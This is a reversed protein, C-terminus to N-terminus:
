KQATKDAIEPAIKALAHQAAKAIDANTNHVSDLLAPVAPLADKRMEGLWEIREPLFMRHEKGYIMNTITQVIKPKASEPAIEHLVTIATWRVEVEPDDLAKTLVPVVVATREPYIRLAAIANQRLASRYSSAANILDRFMQSKEKQRHRVWDHNELICVIIDNLVDKDGENHLAHVLAPAAVDESQAAVKGLLWAAHGRIISTDNPKPLWRQWFPRLTSYAQAYRYAWKGNGQNLAKCLIAVGRPGLAEWQVQEPGYILPSITTLSQIWQKETKGQIQERNDVVETKHAGQFLWVLGGCIALLGIM